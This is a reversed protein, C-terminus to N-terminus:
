LEASSPSWQFSSSKEISPGLRRTRLPVQQAAKGWRERRAREQEGEIHVRLEKDEHELVRGLVRGGDDVDRLGEVVRVPNARSRGAGLERPIPPGFAELAARLDGHAAELRDLWAAQEPGTLHPEASEALRVAAEIPEPM